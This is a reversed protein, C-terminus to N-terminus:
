VPPGSKLRRATCEVAAAKRRRMRRRRERGGRALAESNQELPKSPQNTPQDTPHFDTERPPPCLSSSSTSSAASRDRRGPFPSPYPASRPRLLESLTLVIIQRQCRSPCSSRDVEGELRVDEGDDKEKRTEEEWRRVEALALCM